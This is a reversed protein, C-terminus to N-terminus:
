LSMVTTTYLGSIVNPNSVCSSISGCVEERFRYLTPHRYGDQRDREMFKFDITRGIYKESQEWMARGLAHPIGSPSATSGDAVRVDVSGARGLPIGDLSYAENIGTIVGAEDEIPKFKLWGDTRKGPEYMHTMSKLMIGEFGSERVQKFVANVEAEDNCIFWAPSMLKGINAVDLIHERRLEYPLKVRPLDFLIFSAEAGSLDDPLGNTSRVWRYSDNFSNNVLFGCDFEYQKTSRALEYFQFAFEDMNALKNGAYSLFEVAEQVCTGRGPYVLVQCRIEDYKIEAYLPYTVVPSKDRRLKDKRELWKRGKMLAPM